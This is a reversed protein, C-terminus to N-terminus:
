APCVHGLGATWSLHCCPRHAELNALHSSRMNLTTVVPFRCCLSHCLLEPLCLLTWGRPWSSLAVPTQVHGFEDCQACYTPAAGKHPGYKLLAASVSLPPHISHAPLPAFTVQTHSLCLCLHATDSIPLPLAQTGMSTLSLLQWATVLTTTSVGQIDFDKRVCM